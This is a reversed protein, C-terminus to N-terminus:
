QGSRHNCYRGWIAYGDSKREFLSFVFLAPQLLTRLPRMKGTVKAFFWLLATAFIGRILLTQGIDLTSAAHKVFIDNIGFGAMALAMLIAGRANEGPASARQTISFQVMISFCFTNKLEGFSVTPVM